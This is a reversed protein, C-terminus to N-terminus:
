ADSKRYYQYIAQTGREGLGNEELQCYIDAALDLGPLAIGMSEAMQRAIALDKVIHRIYFGPEFDGRLVRPALNSLAWSGAAGGSISSLVKAGDLGAEAAYALAESMGIMGVAVAIQNCMKTHQGAGAPGQLVINQGLALFVPQLDTFDEERGGCMIVLRGERAGVDGGSVPADMAHLGRREAEESIRRALAPASTTMDVLHSGPRAAAFIGSEGFYVQEVDAPYGVMTIVVDSAAAVEGATDRWQAGAEILTAARSKTRTTVVLAFGARMLNAAMSRGMVGTGVFGIVSQGAQVSM